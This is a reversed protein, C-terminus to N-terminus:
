PFKTAMNLPLALSSWVSRQVLHLTLTVGQKSMKGDLRRPHPSTPFASRKGYRWAGKQKPLNSTTGTAQLGTRLPAAGHQIGV